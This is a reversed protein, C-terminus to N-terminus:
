CSAGHTRALWLEDPAVLRRRYENGKFYIKTYRQVILPFLIKEEPGTQCVFSHEPPFPMAM